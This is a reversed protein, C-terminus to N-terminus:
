NVLNWNIVPENRQHLIENVRSFHGCGIFGRNASLPSPHPAKLIYHRTNDILTEKAGAYNGWLLFIVNNKQESLVEIVKDTFIEWGKKQHSGAQNSRVTLTANLLLVGQRAWSTLNGTKPVPIGLDRKIEKFINQLSPPSPIGDPVSFCLGHAQGPGHYPDQGLIVVRVQDFPTKDFATFILNGPPYVTFHKKEETLFCKLDQFYTKNFENLLVNKWSEEIKPDM